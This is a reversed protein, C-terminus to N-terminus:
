PEREWVLQLRPQIDSPLIVTAVYAILQGVLLKVVVCIFNGSQKGHTRGHSVYHAIVTGYPRGASSAPDLFIADPARITARIEAEHSALEPRVSGKKAWVDETCTVHVGWPDTESWRVPRSSV